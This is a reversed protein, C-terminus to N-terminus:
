VLRTEYEERLQFFLEFAEQESKTHEVIFTQWGKGGDPYNRGYRETVFRHFDLPVLENFSIEGSHGVMGSGFRYGMLFAVLSTFPYPGGGWYLGPRNRISELLKRWPPIPEM